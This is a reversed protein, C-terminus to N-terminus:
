SIPSKIVKSFNEIQQITVSVMGKILLNLNQIRLSLVGQATCSYQGADDDTLNSLTLSFHTRNTSISNNPIWQGRRRWGFSGMPRGHNTIQCVLTVNSGITGVYKSKVAKITPIVIIILDFIRLQKSIM